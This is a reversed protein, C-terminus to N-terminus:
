RIKNKMGTVDNDRTPGLHMRSKKDMFVVVDDDHWKSGFAEFLM